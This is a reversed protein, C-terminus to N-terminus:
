RRPIKSLPLRPWLVVSRSFGLEVAAAPGPMKCSDSSCAPRALAADEAIPPTAAYISTNAQGALLPRECGMEDDTGRFQRRQLQGIWCGGGRGHLCCGCSSGNHKVLSKFSESFARWCASREGGRWGDGSLRQSSSSRGKRRPAHQLAADLLMLQRCSELEM